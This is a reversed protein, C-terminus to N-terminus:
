CDGAIDRADAIERRAATERRTARNCFRFARLGNGLQKSSIIRGLVSSGVSTQIAPPAFDIINAAPTGALDPGAVELLGTDKYIRAQLSGQDFSLFSGSPQVSWQIGQPFPKAPSM